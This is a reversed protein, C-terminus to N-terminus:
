AAQILNFSDLILLKRIRLELAYENSIIIIPVLNGIKTSKGSTLKKEKKKRQLAHFVSSFELFGLASFKKFTRNM